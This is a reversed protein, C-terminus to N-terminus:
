ANCSGLSESLLIFFLSNALFCKIAKLTLFVSIRLNSLPTKPDLLQAARKRFVVLILDTM